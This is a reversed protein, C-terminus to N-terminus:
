HKYQAHQYHLKGRLVLFRRIEHMLLAVVLVYILTALSLPHALWNFATGLGPIHWRVRGVVASVPVAPDPIDLTDGQMILKTTQPDTVVLRHTITIKPNQLSRYTVIDGPRLRLSSVRETIVLDGPNLTPQMSGTRVNLINGGQSLWVLALAAVSSAGM